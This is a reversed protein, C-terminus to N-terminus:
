RTKALPLARAAELPMPKGLLYGQVRTIGIERIVGLDEQDEVGEAIVECGIRKGYMTLAEALARRATDRRLGNILTRDLKVLDPSLDLIHRFTSHGAGVDDIALMLGRQRLPTLAERLRVYCEVVAHETIELIVRDVPVHAFVEGLLPSAIAAPSLNVAVRLTEDLLPLAELAKRCALFELELGLGMAEAEAFWLDPTRQPAHPFRSLAEFGLLRCDGVQYIPQFVMDIGESAIIRQIRNRRSDAEAAVKGEYELVACVVDACMRLVSQDQSTLTREPRFSFCSLFGFTTGDPRRLPVSLLPGPPIASSGPLPAALPDAAVDDPIGPVVARAPSQPVSSRIPDAGVEEIEHRTEEADTYRFIRGDRVFESIFGVDMALYRRAVRLIAQIQDGTAASGANWQGVFGSV